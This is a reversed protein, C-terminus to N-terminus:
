GDVMVWDDSHQPGDQQRYRRRGNMDEAYDGVPIHIASDSVEKYSWPHEKSGKRDIETDEAVYEHPEDDDIPVLGLAAAETATYKRCEDWNVYTPEVGEAKGDDPHKTYNIDDLADAVDRDVPLTGEVIREAIEIFGMMNWAAAAAHDEDRKGELVAFIHRLASDLFVSLPQGKEWNRDDYKLAGNEYHKALRRMAKAPLLDYRGKGFARDRRSGTSFERREGSDKVSDYM